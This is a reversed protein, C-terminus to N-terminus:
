ISGTKLSCDAHRLIKHRFWGVLLWRFEIAMLASIETSVLKESMLLSPNIKKPRCINAAAGRLINALM